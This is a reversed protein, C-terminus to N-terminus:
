PKYKLSVQAGAHHPHGAGGVQHSTVVGGDVSAGPVQGDHGNDIHEM